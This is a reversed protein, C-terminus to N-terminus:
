VQVVTVLELEPLITYIRSAESLLAACILIRGTQVGVLLISFCVMRLASGGGGVGWVLWHSERILIM